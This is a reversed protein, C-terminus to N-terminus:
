QCLVPAVQAIRRSQSLFKEKYHVAFALLGLASPLARTWLDSLSVRRACRVTSLQVAKGNRLWAPVPARVGSRTTQRGFSRRLCTDAPRRRFIEPSHGLKPDSLGFERMM